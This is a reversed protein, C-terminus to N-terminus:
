PEQIDRPMDSWDDHFHRRNVRGSGGECEGEWARGCGGVGSVLEGAKRHATQFRRVFGEAVSSEAAGLCVRRGCNPSVFSQGSLCGKRYTVSPSRAPGAREIPTEAEGGRGRDM